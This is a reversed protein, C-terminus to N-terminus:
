MFRSVKVDSGLDNFPPKTCWAKLKEVPDSTKDANTKKENFEEVVKGQRAADKSEKEAKAKAAKAAKKEAQKRTWETEVM